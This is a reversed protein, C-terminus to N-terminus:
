FISKRGLPQGQVKFSLNGVKKRRRGKGKPLRSWGERM